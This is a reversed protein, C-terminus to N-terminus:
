RLHRLIEDYKAAKDILEQDIQTTQNAQDRVLKAMKIFDESIDNVDKVLFEVRKALAIIHDNLEGHGVISDIIKDAANVDVNNDNGNNNTNGNGNKRVHVRYQSKYTRYIHTVSGRTWSGGYFTTVGRSNLDDAALKYVNHKDVGIRNITRLVDRITTENTRARTEGFVDTKDKANDNVNVHQTNKTNADERLCGARHAVTSAVTDFVDNCKACAYCETGDELQLHIVGKYPVEPDNPRGPPNAYASQQTLVAIGDVATIRRM